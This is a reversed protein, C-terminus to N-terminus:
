SFLLSCIRTETCTAARLARKAAFLTIPNTIAPLRHGAIAVITVDDPPHDCLNFSPM